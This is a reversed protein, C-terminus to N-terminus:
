IYIHLHFNLETEGITFSPEPVPSDGSFTCVDQPVGEPFDPQPKGSLDINSLWLGADSFFDFMQTNELMPEFSLSFELLGSGPFVSDEGPTIGDAGKLRFTKGDAKIVPDRNIKMTLTPFGRASFHLTTATDTLEVKSIDFASKSVFNIWPYDVTRAAGTFGGFLLVCVMSVLSFIFRNM